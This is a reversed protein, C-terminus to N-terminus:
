SVVAWCERCARMGKIQVEKPQQPLPVKRGSGGDEDIGGLGMSGSGFTSVSGMSSRSKRRELRREREDSDDTKMWGVFGEEVVEGRGSKWDAIL